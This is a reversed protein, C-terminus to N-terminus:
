EPLMTVGRVWTTTRLGASDNDVLISLADIHGIQADLLSRMDDRLALRATHWQNEEADTNAMVKVVVRANKPHRFVEGLPRDAVAYSLTRSQWPLPGRRVTASVRLVFDFQDDRRPDLARFHRDTRWQFTLVPLPDLAIRRRLVMASAGGDTDARLAPPQWRHDIRYRTAGEIRVEQWDGFGTSLPLLPQAGSNGAVAALLLLAPITRSISVRM